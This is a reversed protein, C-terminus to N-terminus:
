CSQVQLVNTPFYLIGIPSFALRNLGALSTQPFNSETNYPTVYYDNAPRNDGTISVYASNTQQPPFPVNEFSYLLPFM